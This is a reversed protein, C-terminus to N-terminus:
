AKYILTVIGESPTKIVFDGYEVTPDTDDGYMVFFKSLIYGKCYVANYVNVGLLATEGRFVVNNKGIATEIATMAERYYNDIYQEMENGAFALQEDHHVLLSEAFTTEDFSRHIPISNQMLVHLLLAGINYCVIRVPLLNQPKVVSVCMEELQKEYLVPSFQRLAELEVYTATGEIQEAKAEYSFEQPFREARYKRISLFQNYLTPSFNKVLQVLVRNEELKASLNESNYNYTYLAQLENPFRKEHHMQQFSHYMEHVIGASLIVPDITGQVNWIAIWEGQYEIATNGLFEPPKKMMKGDFCCMEDDYLAFRLPLFGGWLIETNLRHINQEINCYLECLDMITAEKASTYYCMNVPMCSLVFVSFCAVKGRFLFALCFEM